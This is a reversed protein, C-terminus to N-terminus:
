LLESLRELQSTLGAHIEGGTQRIVLETKALNEDGRVVTQEPMGSSTVLEDLAQGLEALVEPHVTVTLQSAARTQQLADGAWRILMTADDGLRKRVIKEVAALLTQSFLEAYQQMWQEHQQYLQKTASQMAAVQQKAAAASEKRVREDVEAEAERLGQQLGAQRADERIQIAEQRANELAQEVHKKATELQVRGQDALDDLNFGALGTLKRAAATKETEANPKLVTAM